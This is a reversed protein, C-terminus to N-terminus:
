RQGDKAVDDQDFDIGGLSTWAAGAPVDVEFQAIRTSLRAPIHGRGNVPQAAAWAVATQPREAGGARGSAAAADGNLRFGRVFCRSGPVPEFPSTQVSAAMPTGTFFSLRNSADFAALGPAGGKWIDSGLPYPVGILTAYLTTLNLLTVGATAATFLYTLACTAHTWRDREIDYIILGDLTTSAANGARPYLWFIRRVLPDLAGIVAKFRTKNADAAFWDNVRNIGINEIGGYLGGTASGFGTIRMFGTNAYYYVDGGDKVISYPSPTGRAADIRHFEFIAADTRATQRRVTETQFVLGGLEYGAQGMVDGGDPFVQADSDKSYASWTSADNRGSWKVSRRSTATAGLQVFDGVVEAYRANPPNGPLAALNTGADVDISQVVDNGNAAILTSGYQKVSWYEDAALNYGGGSTRTVDTWASSVGAFKYGGTASLAYIAIANGSTRAAFAGRVVTPAALSSAAPQPLPAYANARCLVGSAEAAANANLLYVDPQWPAFDPM